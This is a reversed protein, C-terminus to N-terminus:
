DAVAVAGFSGIKIQIESIFELLMVRIRARAASRKTVGKRGNRVDRGVFQSDAILFPAGSKIETDSELEQDFLFFPGFM